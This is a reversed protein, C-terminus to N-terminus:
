AESVCRLPEKLGSSLDGILRPIHAASLIVVLFLYTSTRSDIKSWAFSRSTVFKM